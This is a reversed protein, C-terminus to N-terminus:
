KKLRASLWTLKHSLQSTPPPSRHGHSMKFDPFGAVCFLNRKAILIVWSGCVCQWLSFNCKATISIMYLHSIGRELELVFLSNIYKWKQGLLASCRRLGSFVTFLEWSKSQFLFLMSVYVVRATAFWFPTVAMPLWNPENMRRVQCTCFSLM